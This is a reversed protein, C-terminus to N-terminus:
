KKLLCTGHGFAALGMGGLGADVELAGDGGEAVGVGPASVEGHHRLEVAITEAVLEQDTQLHGVRGIDAAEFGPNIGAAAFRTVIHNVGTPLM